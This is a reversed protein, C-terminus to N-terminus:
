AAGLQHEAESTPLRAQSSSVAAGFPVVLSFTAGEGPPSQELHVDGGLMRALRRSVTLGLGTGPAPRSHGGGVQAYPEFVYERMEWPVGSGTDRVTVSAADEDRALRVSVSGSRTFKIANGVLNLLIQRVKGADTEMVLSDISELHLELGKSAAHPELLEVIERVLRSLDVANRVVEEKGAELRSFTLIGDIISTLHWAGTRIRKAHDVQEPTLHGLVGTELLEAHGIIGALPTRLEHSMVALFQGKTRDATEAAEKAIRLEEVNRAIEADARDREIAIVATHALVEVVAVEVDTPERCERFYTGFTGLVKGDGAVLPMSWAGRLGLAVPLHAIGRWSASSEFDPTIVVKGTAAAACCTGFDPKAPLGDIAQLYHDPLSPAAANRLCDNGDLLMISAVSGDTLEEVTRVLRCLVTELPAGKVVLELSEKQALILAHSGNAQENTM